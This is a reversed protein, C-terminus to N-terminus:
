SCKARKQHLNLLWKFTENNHPLYRLRFFSGFVPGTVIAWIGFDSNPEEHGLGVLAVCLFLPCRCDDFWFKERNRLIAQYRGLELQPSILGNKAIAFFEPKIIAATRQKQTDSKHSEPMLFWVRIKPNPRYDCTGYKPAKESKSVKRM